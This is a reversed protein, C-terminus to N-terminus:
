DAHIRELSVRGLAGSRLIVQAGGTRLSAEFPGQLGYPSLTVRAGEVAVAGALSRPRYPSSEPFRLWEGDEGRRWFSYGGREPMWAIAQGSARAEAAAHEILLALRRAEREVLAAEGPVAAIVAISSLVAVIAIAVMMELLSFGRM